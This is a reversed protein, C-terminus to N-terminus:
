KGSFRAIFCRVQKPTVRNAISVLEEKLQMIANELHKQKRDKEALKERM